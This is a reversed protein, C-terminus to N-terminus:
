ALAEKDEVFVEIRTGDEQIPGLGVLATVIDTKEKREIGLLDRGFEVERGRWEGVRPLLDVYRGIIQN